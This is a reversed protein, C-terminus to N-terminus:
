AAWESADKKSNDACLFASNKWGLLKKVKKMFWVATYMCRSTNKDIKVFHVKYFEKLATVSFQWLIVECYKIKVYNTGRIEAKLYHEEIM